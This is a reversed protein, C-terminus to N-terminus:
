FNAEDSETWAGEEIKEQRVEEVTALQEQAEEFVEITETMVEVSTELPAATAEAVAAEVEV